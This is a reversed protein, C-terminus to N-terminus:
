GIVVGGIVIKGSDEAGGTKAGLKAGLEARAKARSESESVQQKSHKGRPTRKNAQRALRIAKVDVDETIPQQVSELNLGADAV